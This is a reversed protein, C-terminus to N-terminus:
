VRHKRVAEIIATHYSDSFGLSAAEELLKKATGATQLELGADRALELAYTVDKLMYSVPFTRDPHSEPLLAKMGHNRLAFSDASGKALADFLLKPEVVGSAKAVALAEALAAVTVSLVMNNLLKVAQGAGPPGCHTVDTGMARLLPEIRHFLFADCGVMFALTGDIAAQHTRAVPADAFHANRRTFAAALERALAVPATSCDVIAQGARAALSLELGVARVQPEGPLSLFIVDAHAALEAISGAAMVGDVSLRNLPEPRLDHAIVKGRHKRALNRCMPEGMVGLGIFGFKEQQM